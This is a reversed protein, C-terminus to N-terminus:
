QQFVTLIKIAQRIVDALSPTHAIEVGHLGIAFGDTIQDFENIVEGAVQLWQRADKWIVYCGYDAIICPVRCSAMARHPMGLGTNASLPRFESGPM